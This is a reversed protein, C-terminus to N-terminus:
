SIRWAIEIGKDCGLFIDKKKHLTPVRGGGGGRTEATMREIVGVLERGGRRGIRESRGSCSM